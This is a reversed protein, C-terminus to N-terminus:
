SAGHYAEGAIVLNTRPDFTLVECVRWEPGGGERTFRIAITSTEPSTEVREVVFRLETPLRKLGEGWYTRLAAKGRVDAHGVIEEARPSVFVVDDAYHALIAEIDPRNWAEAWRLAMDTAHELDRPAAHPDSSHEWGLEQERAGARYWEEVSPLARIAEVYPRAGDSMPLGFSLFRTVVPAFMADVITEFDLGSACLALWPRMSWSSFRQNGLFLRLKTM